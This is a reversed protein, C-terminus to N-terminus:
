VATKHHATPNDLLALVARLSVLSTRGDDGQWIELAEIQARLADREATLEHQKIIADSIFAADKEAQEALAASIQRQTDREATLAEIRDAAEDCRCVGRIPDCCYKSRLQVILDPSTTATM